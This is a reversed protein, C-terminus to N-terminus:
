IKPHFEIQTMKRVVHDMYRSKTNCTNHYQIKQGLHKVVSLDAAHPKAPSVSTMSGKM